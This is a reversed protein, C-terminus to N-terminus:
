FRVAWDPWFIFANAIKHREKIEVLKMFIWDFHILYAGFMLERTTIVGVKSSKIRCRKSPPNERIM